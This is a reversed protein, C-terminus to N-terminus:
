MVTKAADKVSNRQATYGEAQVRLHTVSCFSTISQNQFNMSMNQLQCDTDQVTGRYVTTWQCEIVTGDPEPSAHEQIEPCNKCAITKTDTSVELAFIYSKPGM